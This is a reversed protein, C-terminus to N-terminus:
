IFRLPRLTRLLRIVKIASLDISDVTADVLSSVVIFLDLWSWGERLYSNNDLM